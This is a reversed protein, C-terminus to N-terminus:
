SNKEIEDRIWSYTATLGEHLNERPQWGLVQKILSNDSSRGSVGTPGPVHRLQVTKGAISAVLQALEDLSIRRESGINVPRDYGSEVLRTIGELCQDIYLFSRTQQGTGWIEIVGDQTQAVKRCMAAPAKERGDNWSCLPGFVNHLRAISIRFGHNKAYAMYLRESFLKEWGYESDPEAPYADSEVLAPSLSSTQRYEPYVCASSSFFVNKLGKVLMENLLNLNIQTSNRMIDADNAGTFVFGAGGMDAAVQYIQDFDATVLDAMQQQSRLDALVFRDAQTPEYAPQKIDAGVVHHGQRKIHSVLHHGIFGGAGCVLVKKM